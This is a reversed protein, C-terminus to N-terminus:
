AGVHDGVWMESLGRSGLIRTAMRRAEQVNGDIQRDTFGARLLDDRTCSGGNIVMAAMVEAIRAASGDPMNVEMTTM